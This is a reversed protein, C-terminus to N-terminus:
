PRADQMGAPTGRRLAVSTGLSMVFVVFVRRSFCLTVGGSPLAVESIPTLHSGSRVWTMKCIRRGKAVEHPGLNVLDVDCLSGCDGAIWCTCCSEGKALAGDFAEKAEAAEKESGYGLYAIGTSRGSRDFQEGSPPHTRKRPRRISRVPSAPRKAFSSPLFASLRILLQHVQLLLLAQARGSYATGQHEARQHAPRSPRLPATHALTLTWGHVGQPPIM